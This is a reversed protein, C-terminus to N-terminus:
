HVTKNHQKIAIRQDSFAYIHAEYILAKTTERKRHEREIKDKCLLSDNYPNLHIYVM